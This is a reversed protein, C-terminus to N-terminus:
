RVFEVLVRRAAGTVRLDAEADLTFVVSTSMASQLFQCVSKARALALNRDTNLLTPGSTYGVCRISTATANAKAMRLLNQKMRSTLVASGSVFNSISRPQPSVQPTGPQSGLSASGAFSFKSATDKLSVVQSGYLGSPLEFRLESGSAKQLALAVGGISAIFNKDFNLGQFVLVKPSSGGEVFVRTIKVNSLVSQSEVQLQQSGFSPPLVWQAYLTEDSAFSYNSLDAYATGAGNAATNWGAFEYGSRNFGNAILPTSASGSQTVMSGSGSNSDFTVTRPLQTWQAYLNGNAAFLYTAQNTYATGSGDGRTNWGAFSYGARTYTNAVLSTATASIQSSMSGLGENPYFTVTKPVAAWQAFLTQDSAFPFSAQDAYSTGSGDAATNWGAFTYGVRSFANSSIASPVTSSQTNMSGSGGNGNLTLIRPVAVWQAFLTQDSSFSFSARDAYATGTGNAATNWGAFTYGSRTFGNAFLSTASTAIHNTMSGVGGNANFTVTRPIAVWQAYLTADSAFSYAAQDTYSTGSGNASTNWVSFTYGQRTFSNPTLSTSSSGVQAAMSGSGGNADFTVSKTILTWQAYLTLNSTFSYTAQNAYATGSGNAATNWGAFTFGSRTFTNQSLAASVSSGQSSMSGAGGNADYSVTRPIAAWQAFLTTNSTFPFTAQNAYSTGSGDAATNWGSFNFGTRTFSNATLAVAASSSQTSMSGAGSNADFTVVRPAPAAITFFFERGYSGGGGLLLTFMAIRGNTVAAAGPKVVYTIPNGMPSPFTSFYNSLTLTTYLNTCFGNTGSAQVQNFTVTDGPALTVRVQTNPSTADLSAYMRSCDISYTYDAAHSASVGIVQGGAVAILSSLLFGIIKRVNVGKGEFFTYM